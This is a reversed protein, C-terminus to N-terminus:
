CCSMCVLFGVCWVCRRIAHASAFVEGTPLPIGALEAITPLVDVLEVLADSRQPQNVIWPASIILPVRTGLEFNTFKRWAGHEGLQWGHDGHLVIACEERVGLAELESVFVGLKRDMGTTAARYARRAKRVDDPPLPVYPTPHTPPDCTPCAESMHFAIPPMGAPPQQHTPLDIQSLPHKAWDEAAAQWPMHPKHLGLALYFFANAAM